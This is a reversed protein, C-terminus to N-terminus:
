NDDLSVYDYRDFAASHQYGVLRSSVAAVKNENYLPIYWVLENVLDMIDRYLATREDVDTTAGAQVLLEDLEANGWPGYNGRAGTGLLPDAFISPEPSSQNWGSIAAQYQGSQLDELFPAWEMVQISADIGIERWQNAVALAIERDAFYRGNPTKIVVTLNKGDRQLIGASNKEYGAEELLSLALEPDYHPASDLDSYAWSAIPIIPNSSPTGMDSVLIGTLTVYDAAHALAQRILTEQTLGDNALRLMRVRYAPASHTVVNPNTALRDWDEESIATVIHIGGTELEIVQTSAEPIPRFMLEATGAPTGWYDPNRTLLVHQGPVWEKFMFSGTGIPHQAFAAVGNNDVYDKSMIFGGNTLIVLDLFGATPVKLHYAVTYDDLVEINDVIAAWQAQFRTPGDGTLVRDFHWKVVNADFTSGDHFKVDDRLHFTWTLGDESVDWSAALSPVHQGTEDREVLRELIHNIVLSTPADGVDAPDFQIVDTVAAVILRDNQGFAAASGLLLAAVLTNRLFRPPM